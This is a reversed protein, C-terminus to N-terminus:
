SRRWLIGCRRMKSDYEGDDVLLVRANV